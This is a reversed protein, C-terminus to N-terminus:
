RNFDWVISFRSITNLFGGRADYPYIATTYNLNDFINAVTLNIDATGIRAGIYFDM